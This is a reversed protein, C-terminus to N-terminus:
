LPTCRRRPRLRSGAVAERATDAGPRHRTTLLGHAAAGLASEGAAL